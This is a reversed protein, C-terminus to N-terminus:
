ASRRQSPTFRRLFALYGADLERPARQGPTNVHAKSRAKRDAKREAAAQKKAPALASRKEAELKRVTERTQTDLRLM